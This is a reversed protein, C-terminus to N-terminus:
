DSMTPAPGHCRVVHGGGNQRLMKTKCCYEQTEVVLPM